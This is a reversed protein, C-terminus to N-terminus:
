RFGPRHAPERHDRCGAGLRRGDLRRRHGPNTGRLRPATTAPALLERRRAGAAPRGGERAPMAGRRLAEIAREEGITGSVFIFPVDPLERKALALASLGAFQPMSFDSLIIDCAGARLAALFEPGTEVRKHSCQIGDLQLRRVALEADTAVDEVLLMRVLV